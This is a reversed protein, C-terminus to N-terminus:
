TGCDSVSGMLESLQKFGSFGSSELKKEAQILEQSQVM